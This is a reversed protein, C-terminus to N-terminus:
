ISDQQMFCAIGAEKLMLKLYNINAAYHTCLIAKEAQQMLNSVMQMLITVKCNVLRQKQVQKFEQKGARKQSHYDLTLMEDSDILYM